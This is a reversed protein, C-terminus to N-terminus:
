TTICKYKKRFFNLKAQQMGEFKKAGIQDNMWFEDLSRVSSYEARYGNKHDYIMGWNYVTGLVYTGMPLIGIVEMLYTVLMELTKFSHIGGTMWGPLTAPTREIFIAKNIPTNWHYYEFISYLEDGLIQWARYGVLEGVIVTPPTDLIALRRKLLNLSTM